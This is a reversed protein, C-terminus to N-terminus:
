ALAGEQNPDLAAALVARVQEADLAAAPVGAVTLAKALEAAKRRVQDVDADDRLGGSAPPQDRVALLVQRWLLDASRALDTLFAAHERAAQELAPHPLGPAAEQIQAIHGTLDVREARVVIQAPATLSNLVRAFAAVMAEQEAPTALAFSVTPCAVLAAHGDAALDIVGDDRIGTVPLALPAPLPLAAAAMAAPLFSPPAAVGAPAPVLRRPARRQRLAALVFQDLPMGDRRVVALAFGSAAVPAALVAFVLLPVLDRTAMFAVWVVVGTVVLIATQRANFPGLIKDAVDIDAPIRTSGHPNTV